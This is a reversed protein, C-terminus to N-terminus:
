AIAGELFSLNWGRIAPVARRNARKGDMFWTASILISTFQM